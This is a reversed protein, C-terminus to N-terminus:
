HEEDDTDGLSGYTQTDLAIDDRKPSYIRHTMCEDVAAHVWHMAAERIAARGELFDPPVYRAVTAFFDELAEARTM